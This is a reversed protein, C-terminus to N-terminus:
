GRWDETKCKMEQMQKNNSPPLAERTLVSRSDRCAPFSKGLMLVRLSLARCKLGSDPSRSSTASELFLGTSFEGGVTGILLCSSTGDIM